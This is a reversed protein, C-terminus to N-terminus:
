RSYIRIEVVVLVLLLFYMSSNNKKSYNICSADFVKKIVVLKVYKKGAPSLAHINSLINYIHSMESHFKFYLLNTVEPASFPM